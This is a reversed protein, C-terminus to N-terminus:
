KGKRRRRRRYATLPKGRLEYATIVFVSNPEPDPVYIVRLYRGGSTRGLAVRSGERGPRDEGARQLAQEVEM